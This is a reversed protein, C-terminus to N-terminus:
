KIVLQKTSIGLESKVNVFYIGASLGSVDMSSSAGTTKMTQVVAGQATIVTIEKNMNDNTFGFQLTTSAPNPYMSWSEQLNSWEEIGNTGVCFTITNTTGFNANAQTLQGITDNDSVLEYHGSPSNQSTLGDGYADNITFHYCGQALCFSSNYTAGNTVQVYPGGTFYTISNDTSRISWTTEDGYTDTTLSLTVTYPNVITTFTSEITDNNNNQDVSANPNDVYANFTHSGGSLTASPLAVVQNQYQNLSGSWSYTQNYAGDYGYHVTVSTLPDTGSNVITVSPTVTASCQTGNVGQLAGMGADTTVGPGAPDVGDVVTAGTNNPDLWTSLQTSSTGGCTWSMYLKGYEDSLDSGGCSSAGGHLQGVTRHYEDFLPSGSSGGETVGNDWHTVGWHSDAPCGSFTTSILPQNEFSIKKIDGAPHHIGVASNAPVNTANFGNYYIGWAPDPASNLLTLTFDSNSCNAKLTGGNVTMNTPGNNNANNTTACITHAADREWRFRFVWSTPNTGCHNASLFYPIITGSANNILSGSCFAGGGNILVAVSNRQNEWGAGIPCNVDYECSGSGGIAKIEEELDLYAHVVSGINLVSTGAENAPELLEIIVADSHILETGLVNNPNNNLSTHAGVYETKNEDTLYLIANKSLHFQDFTLNLSLAGPSSIKLQRLVNGNPLVTVESQTMFNIDVVLEKGYRYDKEFSTARRNAENAAEAANDVATMKIAEKPIGVKEKWSLPTGLQQVQAMGLFGLCVFAVSLLRKKM